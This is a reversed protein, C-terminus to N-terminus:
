INITKHIESKEMQLISKNKNESLWTFYRNLGANTLNITYDVGMIGLLFYLDDVHHIENDFSSVDPILFDYENLKKVTLEESITLGCQM